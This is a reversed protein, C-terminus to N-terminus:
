GRLVATPEPEPEPAAPRPPPVAARRALLVGLLLLVLGAVALGLPLYRGLLLLQDRGNGTEKLVTARTAADYQFDADFLVITLGTDPVIERHQQERYGVIAGTAPEVWLTRTAQYYATGGTAGPALEGLLGGIAADDMALRQRPIEQRFRYTDLGGIEEEGTYAIPLAEGLTGDWYRYDRRETGFPFLYLQGSFTVNGAVCGDNAASDQKVDNYCQGSWAVAAGTDRDLAIRSEARNIPDGTDARDTAQYVNWILTRDALKGTLKAAAEFDPKVGTRSRLPGKQVGVEVSGDSQEVAQVFTANPAEVVIDPPELDLPYRSLGPVIVWALAAALILCLLGAGFLAAGSIRRM